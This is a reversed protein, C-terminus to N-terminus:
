AEIPRYLLLRFPLAAGFGLKAAVRASAENDRDCSWYMALDREALAAALHAVAM